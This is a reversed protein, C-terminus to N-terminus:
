SLEFQYGTQDLLKTNVVEVQDDSPAEALTLSVAARDTHIGPGKRVRWGAERALSDAIQLIQQQNPHPHVRLIYGTENALQSIITQHRQGIQPSIFTLVIENQKLGTKMLGLPGLAQRIVDYAVNIEMQESTEPTGVPVSHDGSAPVVDGLILKFGTLEQYARQLAAADEMSGVEAQVENKDMYFSPGKIIYAGEPMLEALAASLAQQNVTQRVDVAWGTQDIIAEIQQAYL